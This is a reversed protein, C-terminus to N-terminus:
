GASSGVTVVADQSAMSVAKALSRRAAALAQKGRGDLFKIVTALLLEPLSLLPFSRERGPM